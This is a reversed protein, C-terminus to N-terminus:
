AFSKLGSQITKPCSVVFFTSAIQGLRSDHLGDPAPDAVIAVVAAAVASDAFDVADAVAVAVVGAGVVAFKDRGVSRSGM